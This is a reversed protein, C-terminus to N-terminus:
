LQNYSNVWTIGFKLIRAQKCHFQMYYFFSCYSFHYDSVKAKKLQSGHDVIRFTKKTEAYERVTVPAVDDDLDRASRAATMESKKVEVSKFVSHNDQTALEPFKEDVDDSESESETRNSEM